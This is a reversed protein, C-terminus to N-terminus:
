WFFFNCDKKLFDHTPMEVCHRWVTAWRSWPGPVEGDYITRWLPAPKDAKRNLRDRFETFGENSSFHIARREMFNSVTGLVGKARHRALVFETRSLEVAARMAADMVTRGAAHGYSVSGTEAKRFLIIVEEPRGHQIRVAEVGEFGPISLASANFCGSWWGILAWRELAEFYAAKRAQFKLGPYAAMGNSSRDHTFGYREADGSQHVTLFAWRELAESIAKHQAVAPSASSGTGDANGYVAHNMKGVALEPKLFANVQTELEKHGAIQLVGADETRQIPGGKGVDAFVDRYLFPAFSFM